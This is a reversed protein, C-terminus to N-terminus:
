VPGQRSEYIVRGERLAQQIFRRHSIRELEEPTYIFVDIDRGRITQYLERLIGDFRDFYPKDTQQILILDLDSRASQRGRAFSGFLVASEIRYKEFVPKLERAIQDADM